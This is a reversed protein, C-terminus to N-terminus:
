ENNSTTIYKGFDHYHDLHRLFYKRVTLPDCIARPADFGNLVMVQNIMEGQGAKDDAIKAQIQTTFSKLQGDPTAYALCEKIIMSRDGKAAM